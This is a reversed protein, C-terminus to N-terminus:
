LKINKIVKDWSQFFNERSNNKVKFTREKKEVPKVVTKQELKYIYKQLNKKSRSCNKGENFDGVLQNILDCAESSILAGYNKTKM